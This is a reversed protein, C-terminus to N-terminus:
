PKSWMIIYETKYVKQTNTNVVGRVQTRTRGDTRSNPRYLLDTYEEINVARHLNEFSILEPFLNDKGSAELKM